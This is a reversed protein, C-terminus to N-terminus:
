TEETSKEECIGTAQRQPQKNEGPCEETGRGGDPGAARGAARLGPAPTKVERLRRRPGLGEERKAKGRTETAFM